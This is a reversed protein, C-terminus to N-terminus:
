WAVEARRQGGARLSAELLASHNGPQWRRVAKHATSRNCVQSSGGHRLTNSPSRVARSTIMASTAALRSWASRANRIHGSRVVVVRTSMETRSGLAGLKSSRADLRIISTQRVTRRTTGAVFAGQSDQGDSGGAHNECADM